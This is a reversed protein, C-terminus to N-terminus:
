RRGAKDLADGAAMIGSSQPMFRAFAQAPDHMLMQLWNTINQPAQQPVGQVSYDGPKKLNATRHNNWAVWTSYDPFGRSRALEDLQGQSYQQDSM